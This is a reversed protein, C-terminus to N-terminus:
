IFNFNGVLVMNYCWLFLFFFTTFYISLFCVKPFYLLMKYSFTSRFFCWSIGKWKIHLATTQPLPPVPPAKNLQSSVIWSHPPPPLTSATQALNPLSPTSQALTPKSPPISPRPTRTKRRRSQIAATLLETASRKLSPGVLDSSSQATLNREAGPIGQGTFTIFSILFNWHFNHCIDLQPKPLLYYYRHYFCTWSKFVSCSSHSWTSWSSRCAAMLAKNSIVM